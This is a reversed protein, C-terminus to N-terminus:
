GCDCMKKVRQRACVCSFIVCVRACVKGLPLTTKSGVKDTGAFIVTFKEGNGVGSWHRDGSDVDKSNKTGKSSM